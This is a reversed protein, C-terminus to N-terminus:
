DTSLVTIELDSFMLTGMKARDSYKKWYRDRVVEWGRRTTDESTFTTSRTRSYGNMFGDIDGRNWASQQQQIVAKIQDSPRPSAVLPTSLATSVLAILLFIRALM